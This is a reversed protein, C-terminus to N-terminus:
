IGYKNKKQCTLKLAGNLVIAISYIYITTCNKPHKEFLLWIVLLYCYFIVIDDILLGSNISDQLFLEIDDLFLVVLVPSM